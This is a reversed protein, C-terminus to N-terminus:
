AIGFRKEQGTEEDTFSPFLFIDPKGPPVTSLFEGALAHSMPKIGPRPLDWMSLLLQAQTGWLQQAWTSQFGHAVVLTRAGCCFIKCSEMFIGCAVVLVWHLWILSDSFSLVKKMRTGPHERQHAKGLDLQSQTGQSFVRMERKCKRSVEGFFVYLYCIFM